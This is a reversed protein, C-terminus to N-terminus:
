EKIWITRKGNQDTQNMVISYFRKVERMIILITRIGMKELKNHLDKAQKDVTSDNGDSIYSAPFDAILYTIVNSQDIIDRDVRLKDSM